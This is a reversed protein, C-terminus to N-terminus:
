VGAGVSGVVAPNQGNMACTSQVTAHSFYTAAAGLRGSLLHLLVHRGERQCADERNPGGSRAVAARMRITLARDTPNHSKHCGDPQPVSQADLFAARVRHLQAQSHTVSM